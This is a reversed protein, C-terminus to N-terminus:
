RAAAPKVDFGYSRLCADLAEIKDVCASHGDENELFCADRKARLEKCVCM